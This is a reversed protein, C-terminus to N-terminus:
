LSDWLSDSKSSSHLTKAMGYLGKSVDWGLQLASKMAKFPKALTSTLNKVQRTDFSGSTKKAADTKSLSQTTSVSLHANTHIAIPPM